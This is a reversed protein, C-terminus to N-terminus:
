NNIREPARGPFQMFLEKEEPIIWSLIVEGASVAFERGAGFGGNVPTTWVARYYGPGLELPIELNAELKIEQGGGLSGGSVTLLVPGDILTRNVAVLLAKGLPATYGSIVPAPTATPPPPPVSTAPDLTLQDYVETATLGEEPVIWMVFIKGPIAFFDAGRVFGGPRAPSSWLARYEDPELVIEIEKNPGVDIEQGGGVSKGGSLTLLAPQNYLSRNSVILLAKGEPARMVLGESTPTPMPTAPPRSTPLLTTPTLTPTPSLPAAVLPVGVTNISGTFNPDASVWGVRDPAADFRIQWWLGAGLDAQGVIAAQEGQELEGVPEYQLGPGARVNLRPTNVTVLAIDPTPTALLPTTTATPLETPTASPSLPAFTSTPPPTPEPTPTDQQDVVTLTAAPLKSVQDAQNYARVEIGYLGPADPRWQLTATMSAADQGSRHGIENVKRGNVWLEMRTVGSPDSATAQVTVLQDILIRSNDSLSSNLTIIPADPLRTEVIPAEVVTSSEVSNLWYWGIGGILAILLLAVLSGMMWLGPKSAFQSRPIVYARTEIQSQPMEVMEREVRLTFSGMKIEDHPELRFPRTLPEDNVLTGNVTNLDEIILQEGRRTLRVHHRSIQDDDLTIDTTLARGITVTEGLIPFVDTKNSRGQVM